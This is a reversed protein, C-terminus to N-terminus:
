NSVAVGGKRYSIALLVCFVVLVCILVWSIQTSNFKCTDCSSEATYYEPYMPVPVQFEPPNAMAGVNNSGTIGRLIIKGLKGNSPYGIWNTLLVVVYYGTSNFFNPRYNPFYGSVDTTGVVSMKDYDMGTGSISISFMHNNAKSFDLFDASDRSPKIYVMPYPLTNGKPIVPDWRTIEYETQVM